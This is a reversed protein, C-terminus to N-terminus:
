HGGHEAHGGHEGHRRPRLTVYVALGPNLRRGYLARLAEPVIGLSVSGGVGPQLGRWPTFYRVHGGQLKAVTFTGDGPAELDHASKVVTEFRGFWAERDDRLLTSELLLADTAVGEETNRGWAVTSAWVARTFVPRHWTISATIRRVDVRPGGPHDPAEAETLRGASVQIAIARTPLYWVRASFSDLAAPDLNSRREDPERGNFISAEAKWRDAAVGATLVGFTIHTADLWHHGIPALPNGMASLRHPYAAPGLAPEGALGGYAEWHLSDGVPHRYEAALEMFLDHPHQRDRIVEGRCVEGTALLDPYGCGRITWPELSLMARLGFRGGGLPRRAMGMIWNISGFQDTGRRGSESLFQLFGVGHAMLEWSGARRHLGYMPTEPPLWATGSADRGEFLSTAAPEHQAHGSAPAAPAAPQSRAPAAIGTALAATALGRMWATRM